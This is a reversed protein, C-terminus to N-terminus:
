PIETYKAKRNAGPRMLRYVALREAIYNTAYEFETVRLLMRVFTHRSPGSATSTAPLPSM